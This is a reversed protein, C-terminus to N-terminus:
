IMDDNSVLVILHDGLAKTAQLHRLHGIHLPDFGGTVAVRIKAERRM